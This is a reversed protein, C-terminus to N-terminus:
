RGAQHAAGRSYYSHQGSQGLIDRVEYIKPPPRTIM